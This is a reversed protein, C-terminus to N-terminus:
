QGLVPFSLVKSHLFLFAARFARVSVHRVKEVESISNWLLSNLIGFVNASKGVTSFYSLSATPCKTSHELKRPAYPLAVQSGLAPAGPQYESQPSWGTLPYPSPASCQSTFGTQPPQCLVRWEIAPSRGLEGLLLHLLPVLTTVSNPSILTLIPAKLSGHKQARRRAM